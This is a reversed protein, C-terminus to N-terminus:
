VRGNDREKKIEELILAAANKISESALRALKEQEEPTLAKIAQWFPTETLDQDREEIQDQTLM